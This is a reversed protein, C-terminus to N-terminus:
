NLSIEYIYYWQSNCLKYENIWWQNKLWRTIMITKFWHSWVKKWIQCNCLLPHISIDSLCSSFSNWKILLQYENQNGIFNGNIWCDTPVYLWPFIFSNWCLNRSILFWYHSLGLFRNVYIKRNTDVICM